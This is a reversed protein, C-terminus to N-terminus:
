FVFTRYLPVEFESLSLIFEGLKSSM